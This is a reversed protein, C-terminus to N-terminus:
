AMTKDSSEQFTLANSTDSLTTVADTLDACITADDDEATTEPLNGSSAPIAAPPPPSPSLVIATHPPPPLMRQAQAINTLQRQQQQQKGLLLGTSYTAPALSPNTTPFKPINNRNFARNELGVRANFGVHNELPNRWGDSSSSGPTNEQVLKVNWPKLLPLKEGLGGFSTESTSLVVKADRWVESSFNHYEALYVAKGSSTLTTLNLEYCPVWGAKKTVYTISLEVKGATESAGFVSITSNRRNTQAERRRKKEAVTINHEHQKRKRNEHEPKAAADRAHSFAAELDRMKRCLRSKRNSIDSINGECEYCYDDLKLRQTQYTRLYEELRAVPTDGAKMSKGYDDLLEISKRATELERHAAALSSDLLKLEKGTKSLESRDVGFDDDPDDHDVHNDEPEVECGPFLEEFSNRQTVTTTQIDTITGPGKGSVRISDPDVQPDVGYITIENAGPKILVGSIERVIIAMQPGLTVSKTSIDVLSIEIAHVVETAM